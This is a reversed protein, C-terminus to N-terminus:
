VFGNRGRGAAATAKFSDETNAADIINEDIGFAGDEVEKNSGFKSSPSGDNTSKAISPINNGNEVLVADASDEDPLIDNKERLFSLMANDDLGGKKSMM